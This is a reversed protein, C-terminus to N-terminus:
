AEVKIHSWRTGNKIHRIAAKSCDFESALKLTMKSSGDLLLMQKIYKVQEDSFISRGHSSGTNISKGRSNTNGFLRVGRNKAWMDRVNDLQTGVQLHDINICAPNDCKHMIVFGTSIQGFHKEWMARHLRILKGDKNIRGYGCDDKSGTFIHCGDDKIDLQANVRDWFPLSRFAKSMTLSTTKRVYNRPMVIGLNFMPITLTDCLVM